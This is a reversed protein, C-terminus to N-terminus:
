VGAQRGGSRQSGAAHAGAAVVRMAAAPAGEEDTETAGLARGTVVRLGIGLVFLITQWGSCGHLHLSALLGVGILLDSVKPAM